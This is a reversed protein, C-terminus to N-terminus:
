YLVMDPDADIDSDSDGTPGFLYYNIEQDTNYKVIARYDGDIVGDVVTSYDDLDWRDSYDYFEFFDDLAGNSFATEFSSLTATPPDIIVPKVCCVNETAPVCKKESTSWKDKKDPGLPLRGDQEVTEELQEEVALENKECSAMVMFMLIALPISIKM